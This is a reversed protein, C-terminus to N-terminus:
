RCVVNALSQVIMEIHEDELRPHLPLTLERTAYDETKSLKVSPYREKYIALHHVPPYHITTQVGNQRLGLIVDQRSAWEPLVVPM